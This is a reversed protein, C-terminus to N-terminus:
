RVAAIERAFYEVTDLAIRANCVYTIDDGAVVIKRILKKVDQQYETQRNQQEPKEMEQGSEFHEMMRNFTSLYSFKINYSIKRMENVADTYGEKHEILSRIRSGMNNGDIHVVALNSDLGKQFILNDLIKEEEETIIKEKYKDKKYTETSVQIQRIKENDNKFTETRSLPYGTKIETQMIPLAGIPKASKINAKVRNMEEHLNKYDESYRETKLVYAAALQLSYTKELVYRSMHKNIKQCIHENEFLVYANGGGIFLVQVALDKEEFPLVGKDDYWQLETKYEKSAEELAREIINEVLASAGMADKIKQTRYVYKQIGRIDYMAIVKEM